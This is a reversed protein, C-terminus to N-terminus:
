NLDTPVEQVDQQIQVERLIFIIDGPLVVEDNKNLPLDAHLLSQDECLLVLGGLQEAPQREFRAVVVVDVAAHLLPALLEEEHGHVDDVLLFADFDSLGAVANLLQPRYILLPVPPELHELDELPAVEGLQDLEALLVVGSEERHEEESVFVEFIGMAVQLLLHSLGPENVGLLDEAGQGGDVGFAEVLAVAILVEVLFEEAGELLLIDIAVGPDLLNSKIIFEQVQEDLPFLLAERHIGAIFHSQAEELVVFGALEVEFLLFEEVEEEV